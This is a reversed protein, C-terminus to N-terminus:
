RSRLLAEVTERSGSEVTGNRNIVLMFEGPIGPLVMSYNFSVVGPQERMLSLATECFEVTVPITIGAHDTRIRAGHAALSRIHSLTFTTM